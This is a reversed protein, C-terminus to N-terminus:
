SILKAIIMLMEADMQRQRKLTGFHVERHDNACLAILNTYSDPGQNKSLLPVLPPVTYRNPSHGLRDTPGSENKPKCGPARQEIKRELIKQPRHHVGDNGRQTVHHPFGPFVIRALRTRHSAM